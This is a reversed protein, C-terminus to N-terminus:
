PLEKSEPAWPNVAAQDQRYRTLNTQLRHVLQPDQSQHAEALIAQQWETAETFRGAAALAMALTEAYYPSRQAEFAAEILQLARTPRRQDPDPHTALLRGLVHAIEPDQPFQEHAAELREMADQFDQARVLYDAELLRLAPENPQEEVALVIQAAADRHRQLSSYVEALALLLDPARPNQRLLFEFDQAAAELDGLQFALRAHERRVQPNDPVLGLFIGYQEFAIEHQGLALHAAALQLRAEPLDPALRVATQLPEIAQQNQRNQYLLQGESLHVSANEPARRRAERLQELGAEPDRHGLVLGYVRRTEVDDPDLELATKYEELAEDIRGDLVAQGARRLAAVVGTRQRDLEDVLPDPFLVEVGGFRALQEEATELDGLQRYSQALDYYVRNATPQLRLAEEFHDIAAQHQGRLAAVRGQGLRSYARAQSPNQVREFREQAEDLRNQELLVQAMRLNAAPDEPRRELALGLSQLAGELDGEAQALVGLYYPWEFAGESLTEANRYCTAAAGRLQYAQFLRGLDGFAAALRQDFEPDDGPTGSHDALLELVAGHRERLQEAVSSETQQLDPLEVSELAAEDSVSEQAVPKESAETEVPGDQPHSTEAGRCGLFLSLFLLCWLRKPRM